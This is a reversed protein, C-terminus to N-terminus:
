NDRFIMLPIIPKNYSICCRPVVSGLLNDHYVTQLKYFMWWLKEETTYHPYELSLMKFFTEGDMERKEQVNTWRKEIRWEEQVNKWRQTRQEKVRIWRTWRREDLRGMWPSIQGGEMMWQSNRVFRVITKFSCIKSINQASKKGCTDYIFCFWCCNRHFFFYRSFLFCDTSFKSITSRDPLVPYSAFFPEGGGGDGDGSGVVDGAGGSDDAGGGYNSININHAM